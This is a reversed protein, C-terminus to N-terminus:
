AFIYYPPRKKRSIKFNENVENESSGLSWPVHSQGFWAKESKTEPAEYSTMYTLISGTSSYRYVVYRNCYTAVYM